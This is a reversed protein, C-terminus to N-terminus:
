HLSKLLTSILLLDFDFYSFSPPLLRLRRHQQQSHDFARWPCFSPGQRRGHLSLPRRHHHDPVLDEVATNWVGVRRKEGATQELLSDTELANLHNAVFHLVNDVGGTTQHALVVKDERRSADTGCVVVLRVFGKREGKAEFEDLVGDRALTELSSERLFVEGEIVGAAAHDSKRRGGLDDTV